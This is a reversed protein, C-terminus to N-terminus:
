EPLPPASLPRARARSRTARGVQLGPPMERFHNRKNRIVRLLDRVAGYDYRRYRGLNAILEVPLVAGAPTAGRCAPKLAWCIASRYAHPLCALSGARWLVACLAQLPPTAAASNKATALDSHTERDSRLPGIRDSRIRDSGIRAALSGLVARRHRLPTHSVTAPHAQLPPQLHLHAQLPPQLATPHLAAAPPAHPACAWGLQTAAAPHGSRRGHALSGSARQSGGRLGCRLLRVLGLLRRAVARVVALGLAGGLCRRPCVASLGAGKRSGSRGQMGCM